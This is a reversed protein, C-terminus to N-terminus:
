MAEGHIKNPLNRSFLLQSDCNWSLTHTHTHTHTEIITLAGTEFGLVRTQLCVVFRISADFCRMQHQIIPNDHKAKKSTINRQSQSPHSESASRIQFLMHCRIISWVNCMYVYMAQLLFWSKILGSQADEDRFCKAIVCIYLAPLLSKSVHAWITWRWRSFMKWSHMHLNGVYPIGVLVCCFYRTMWQFTATWRWLVNTLELLIRHGNEENMGKRQTCVAWNEKTCM